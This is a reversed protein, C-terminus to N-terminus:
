FAKPLLGEIAQHLAELHVPKTLFRAHSPLFGPALVTNGSMIVVPLCPWRFWIAKGLDLGDLKGPMRVDTIVLSFAAASELAMLAEDASTREIVTYGLLEVAQAMVSRLIEDDEVLLINESVTGGSLDLLTDVM